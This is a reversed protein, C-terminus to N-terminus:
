IHFTHLVITIITLKRILQLGHKEYHRVQTQCKTLIVFFIRVRKWCLRVSTTQRPNVGKCHNFKHGCKCSCTVMQGTATAVAKGEEEAEAGREGVADQEVSVDALERSVAEAEDDERVAGEPEAVVQPHPQPQPRPRPPARGGAPRADHVVHHVRAVEVEDDEPADRADRERPEELITSFRM